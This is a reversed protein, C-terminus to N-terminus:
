NNSQIITVNEFGCDLQSTAIEKIQLILADTLEESDIIVDVRTGDESVVALCNQVGKAQVLTEIKNEIEIYSSVAAIKEAAVKHAESDESESDIVAQLTELTEDRASQREVRATSFYESETTQSVETTADVFTAEGLTKGSSTISSIKSSIDSNEWYWNGGIGVALLLVLVSAVVKTKSGKKKKRIKDEPMIGQIDELETLKNKENMEDM